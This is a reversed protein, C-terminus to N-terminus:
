KRTPPEIKGSMKHQDWASAGVGLLWQALLVAALAGVGAAPELLRTFVAALLIGLEDINALAPSFPEPRRRRAAHQGVQIVRRGLIRAAPRVFMVLVLVLGFAAIDFGASGVSSGVLWGGLFPVLLRPLSAGRKLVHLIDLRRLTANILWFGAVAGVLLTELGVAGAIGAAILVVAALQPYVGGPAFDDKTALDAVFGALCGAGMAWLLRAFVSDIELLVRVDWGPVITELVPWPALASGTAALLVAISAAASPNWFSGRGAGRSLAPGTGLLAPGAVCVGALVMLAEPMPPPMGPILRSGAYAAAFVTAAAALAMATENLFPVVAARRVVRLDLGCGIELGVWGAFFLFAPHLIEHAPVAVWTPAAWALLAGCAAALTPTDLVAWVWWPCDRTPLRYRVVLLLVTVVVAAAPLFRGMDNM